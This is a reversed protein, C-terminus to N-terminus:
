HSCPKSESSAPTSVDHFAPLLRYSPRAQLSDKSRESEAAAARLREVEASSAKQAKAQSELKENATTLEQRLASLETQLDQSQISLESSAGEKRGVEPSQLSEVEAKFATNAATLEAVQSRTKTLAAASEKLQM